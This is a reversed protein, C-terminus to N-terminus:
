ASISCPAPVGICVGFLLCLLSLLSATGEKICEIRLPETGCSTAPSHCNHHVVCLQPQLCTSCKDAAAAAQPCWLLGGGCVCVMCRLCTASNPVVCVVVTTSAATTCLQCDCGCSVAFVWLQCCVSMSTHRSHRHPVDGGGLKCLLVAGGGLTQVAICGGGGLTQVAICGGGWLKCLLVAGGGGWTCILEGCQPQPAPLQPASCVAAPPTDVRPTSPYM